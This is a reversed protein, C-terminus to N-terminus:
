PSKTIQLMVGKNDYNKTLSAFCNDGIIFLDERKLYNSSLGDYFANYINDIGMTNLPGYIVQITKMKNNNDFYTLIIGRWVGDSYLAHYKYKNGEYIPKISKDSYLKFEELTPASILIFKIANVSKLSFDIEEQSACLASISALTFLSFLLLRSFQRNILYLLKTKM